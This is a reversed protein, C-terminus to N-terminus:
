LDIAVVEHDVISPVTLSLSQGDRQIRPNTSAALLRVQKAKAGDPLRV